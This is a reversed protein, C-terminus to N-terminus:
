AHRKHMCPHTMSVVLDSRVHCNVKNEIIATISAHKIYVFTTNLNPELKFETDLTSHKLFLFIGQNYPGFMEPM